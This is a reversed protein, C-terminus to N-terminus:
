MQEDPDPEELQMSDPDDFPHIVEDVNMAIGSTGAENTARSPRAKHEERSTVPRSFSTTGGEHLYSM